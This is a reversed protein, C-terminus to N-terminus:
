GKRVRRLKQLPSQARWRSKVINCEQSYLYLPALSEVDQVEGATAKSVAARVLSMPHPMMQADHAFFAKAGLRQRIGDKYMVVGDGLFCTTTKAARLVTACPALYYKSIRKVVGNKIRYFAAYVKEKRADIIPCVVGDHDRQNYALIDLSPIAIVPKKYVFGFAKIVAVGIRLGTFSGPGISLAYADVHALDTHARTFVQEIAPILDSSHRIDKDIVVESLIRLDESLTVVLRNSSTDIALIKM